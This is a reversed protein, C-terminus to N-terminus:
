LNIKLNQGLVKSWNPILFRKGDTFVSSM